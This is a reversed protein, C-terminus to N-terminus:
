FFSTRPKPVDFAANSFEQSHSCNRLYAVGVALYHELALFIRAPLGSHQPFRSFLEESEGGKFFNQASLLRGLFLTKSRVSRVRSNILCKVRFYPSFIAKLRGFSDSTNETKTAVESLKPCSRVPNRVSNNNNNEQNNASYVIDSGTRRTKRWKGVNQEPYNLFLPPLPSFSFIKAARSTNARDAGPNTRPHGDMKPHTNHLEHKMM